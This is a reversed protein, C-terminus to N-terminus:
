RATGAGPPPPAKPTPVNPAPKAGARRARMAAAEEPGVMTSEPRASASVRDAALSFILGFFGVFSLLLGFALLGAGRATFTLAFGLITLGLMLWRTM